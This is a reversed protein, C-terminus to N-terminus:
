ETEQLKISALVRQIVGDQQPVWRLVVVLDNEPDVYITNGGHGSAYYASEPATRLSRQGTNLWWMYGYGPNVPTPVALMKIWEKSILQHEKWKGDRLFLYGFRAQDRSSIWMGGGWHGGGSVSQMEQGDLTIWSNRYGHWRWTTSAGIPEMIKERLIQPLPRRWVHLLSYALLNVRVDNYKMHEGPAYKKRNRWEGPKGVPRDAWDPKGFLTGEWDSTQNLLHHWTIPSNKESDFSGDMVYNGVPEHVDKILRNDLALAFVTSLFSKTVSFTMDVRKTDGFEAVIYGHRIVLGNAEGRRKTPGLISFYPEQMWSTEIAEALDKPGKNQNEIAWDIAQQLLTSDMGVEEPKRTEWESQKEPYYHEQAFLISNALFIFILAFKVSFITTIKFTKTIMTRSQLHMHSM